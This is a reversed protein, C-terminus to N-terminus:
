GGQTPEIILVQDGEALQFRPWEEKPVVEDNVAIAIGRQAGAGLQDILENLNEGVFPTERQNLWIQM